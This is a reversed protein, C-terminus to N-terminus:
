GEKRGTQKMDRKKEYMARDAVAFLHRFFEADKLIKEKAYGYAVEIRNECSLNQLALCEDFQRGFAEPTLASDVLLAAFEDGGIRYCTGHEGFTNAMCDAVTRIALDGAQHGFTDNFYKLNNLDFVFLTVEFSGETQLLRHQEEEFAARNPLDTLLDTYALHKYIAAEKKEEYYSLQRVIIVAFLFLIFLSLAIGFFVADYGSTKRTYFLVLGIVSCLSIMILSITPVLAAPTKRLRGVSTKVAMVITFGILLHTLILIDYPDCLNTVFCICITFPLIWGSRAIYHFLRNGIGLTEECFSAFPIPLMSLCLFSILSVVENHDTVFQPLDSSCIVWVLVCAVFGIFDFLLRSIEWDRAHVSYLLMCVALLVMTLLIVVIVLRLANEYCVQLQLSGIHGFSVQPDDVTTSYYSTMDLRLRSGALSESLPIIVRINGVMRGYPLPLRTGYSGILEEGDYVACACYASKVMLGYDGTVGEPVDVYFSEPEGRKASFTGPRQIEQLNVDYETAEIIGRVALFRTPENESLLISLILTAAISIIAMIRMIRLFKDPFSKDKM